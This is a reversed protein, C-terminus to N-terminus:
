WMQQRAPPGSAGLAPGGTLDFGARRADRRLRRAALRARTVLHAPPVRVAAPVTARRIALYLDRTRLQRLDAAVRLTVHVPQSALLKPRQAHPQGAKVG